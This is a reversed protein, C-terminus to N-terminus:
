TRLIIELYKRTQERNPIRDETAGMHEAETERKNLYPNHTASSRALRREYCSQETQHVNRTTM